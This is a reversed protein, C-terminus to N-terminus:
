IKKRALVSVIFPEAFIPKITDAVGDEEPATDATDITLLETPYHRRYQGPPIGVIQKFVRNFHCVSSFGVSKSVEDLSMESYSILEAAHCVRILTLCDFITRGTSEKFASCIYYKNYGLEDALAQLNVNSRYNDELYRMITKTLPTFNGPDFIRFSEEEDEPSYERAWMHLMANLYSLMFDQSTSTVRVSESVIREILATVEVSPPLMAPVTGLMKVLTSNTLVFKIESAVVLKDSVGEQSHTVGPPALLTNGPGAYHTIGGVNYILTGSHVHTMHYYEHIHPKISVGKRSHMVTVWLINIGQKLDLM